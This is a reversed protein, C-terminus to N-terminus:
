ALRMAWKTITMCIEQVSFLLNLIPEAKDRAMSVLAIGIIVAFIVISLMEGALISALPNSPLLGSVISPIDFSSDAASAVPAAAPGGEGSAVAMSVRSGPRILLAMVVGVVIAFVTTVLFYLGVRPGMRALDATSGEGAIGQIISAVVLPIMIMQVLGIFINGPLGLWSGAIQAVKPSVLGATPGLLMGAGIGLLLAILVRAWLREEVLKQLHSYLRILPTMEM